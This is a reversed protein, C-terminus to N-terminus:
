IPLNRLDGKDFDGTQLQMRIKQAKEHVSALRETATLPIGSTELALEFDLVLSALESNLESCVARRAAQRAATEEHRRRRLAARVERVLRDKGSIALNVQVPVATGLHEFATDLEHPEAELLHADFLAAEYCEERLLATAQSLTGAIVVRDGTAEQIAAACEVRREIPSVLLIM